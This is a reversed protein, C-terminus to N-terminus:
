DEFAGQMELTEKGFPLDDGWSNPIQLSLNNYIAHIEVVGV